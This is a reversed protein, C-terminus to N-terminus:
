KTKKYFTNEYKLALSIAWDQINGESTSDLYAPTQRSVETIRRGDTLDPYAELKSREGDIIIPQKELWKGLADLFEKIDIKTSPSDIATRYVVYFPYNCVQNVKGTVSTTESAIVAGSIPYFSIGSDKGLTSFKIKESGTLMPFSNLLDGIADTVIDYGDVDYKISKNKDAEPM